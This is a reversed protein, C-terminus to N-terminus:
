SVRPVRQFAPAMEDQEAKSIRKRTAVQRWRGVAACIAARQAQADSLTLRFSDAVEMALSLDLRNDNGGTGRAPLATWPDYILNISDQPAPNGRWGPLQEASLGTTWMGPCPIAPKGGVKTWDLLLPDSATAVMTGAITKMGADGPHGAEGSTDVRAAVLDM